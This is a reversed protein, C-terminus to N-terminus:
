RRTRSSVPHPHTGSWNAVVPPRRPQGYATPASSLSSPGLLRRWHDAHVCGCTSLGAGHEHDLDNLPAVADAEPSKRVRDPGPQHLGQGAVRGKIAVPGVGRTAYRIETRGPSMTRTRHVGPSCIVADSAAAAIASTSLSFSTRFRGSNTSIAPATVGVGPARSCHPCRDETVRIASSPLRSNVPHVRAEPWPDAPGAMGHWRLEEGGFGSRQLPQPFALRLRMGHLTM